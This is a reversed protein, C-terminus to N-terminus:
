SGAPAVLEIAVGDPDRLQLSPKGLELVVGSHAVGCATLHDAWARLTAGDAVAFALHDLPDDPRGAAGAAGPAGPARRSLVLAVRSPRHHMAVYSDGTAFAEMGLVTGYWARSADLDDVMLQAHSFGLLPARDTTPEPETM